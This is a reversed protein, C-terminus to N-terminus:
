SIGLALAAFLLIVAFLNTTVHIAIPLWLTRSREFAVAIVIGMVFSSVVVGFTDIHGLSFLLSSILVRPWFSMHAQFWTHLLGRFYLEEAIPALIGAGIISTLAFPWSFSGGTIVNTRFQLGSTGGALQQALLGLVARIPIFSLALLIGVAAIGLSIRPFNLGVREFSLKGRRIGLFFFAGAFLLFNLAYRAATDPLTGIKTVFSLALSALFFLGFGGILYLVLDVWSTDIQATPPLSKTESQIDM